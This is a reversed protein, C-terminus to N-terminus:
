INSKENTKLAKAITSSISDMNTLWDYALPDIQKVPIELERALAKAEDTSFQKQIFFAEVDSAKSRDIIEKLRSPTPEKGEHELAIQNLDYDRAFYSLAPHFILFDSNELGSLSRSIRADLSDIQGLFDRAHKQYMDRHSPDLQVLFSRINGVQKKVARPSTWIHPDVGAGGHGASDQRILRVGRSQDFVKMGPNINRLRDMWVKEFVIHGIRIYAISSEVRQMQGPTPDYTVPNAGPPIMVNVEFQDGAIRDLFYKQPLISVTITKKRSAEEQKTGCGGLLTIVIAVLAVYKGM